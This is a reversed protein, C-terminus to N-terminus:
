LLGSPGRWDSKWGTLCGNRFQLYIRRDVRYLGPIRAPRTAYFVESRASGHHHILPAHLASSADQPTMGFALPAVSPPDAGPVALWGACALAVLSTM